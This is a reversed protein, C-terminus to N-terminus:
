REQMARRLPRTNGFFCRLVSISQSYFLLSFLFLSTHTVSQNQRDADRKKDTDVLLGKIQSSWSKKSPGGGAMGCQQWRRAATAVISSGGSSGGLKCRQRRQRAAVLGGGGDCQTGECSQHRWRVEVAEASQGGGRQRWAANATASHVAVTSGGSNRWM